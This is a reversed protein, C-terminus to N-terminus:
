FDIIGLSSEIALATGLAKARAQLKGLILEADAGKAPYPRYTKREIRVPVIEARRIAGNALILRLAASEYTSDAAMDFVFNGLSYAILGDKYREISQLVHPHHGLVATAGANIAARGFSQQFLGPYHEHEQGWHVSVFVYDARYRERAGRLDAQMDPIRALALGARSSRARDPDPSSGPEPEFGYLRKEARRLAEYAAVSRAEIVSWMEQAYAFVLVRLGDREIVAPRRADEASRGAGARKIGLLDLYDLTEELARPGYDNMHNNALSVVDFGAWSLGFLTAPDARFTVNEPKWPYAKGLYSAPTELNAFAIDAGSVLDRVGEFLYRYGHEAARAGPTRALLIDGCALLSLTREIPLPAPTTAVEAVAPISKLEAAVTLGTALEAALEAAVALEAQGALEALEAAPGAGPEATSRGPACSLSLALSLAAALAAASSGLAVRRPRGRARRGM